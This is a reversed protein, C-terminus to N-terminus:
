RLLAEIKTELGDVGELREVLEGERNILFASPLSVVRYSSAVRSQTSEEDHVAVWPVNMSSSIWFHEDSDLSVQYINFGQASYKNYLEKLMMNYGASYNTKYATFDLLVVSGKLDSLRKMEGRYNPLEIDILATEEFEIHDFRAIVEDSAPVVPATMGMGKLAINHLHQTRTANPYNFDMSTAVTAFCKADQRDGRPNFLAAGRLTMFLAYYAVPSSPNRLIYEEKISSKFNGVMEEYRSRLAGVERGGYESVLKDLQTTMDIQSLVLRKLELSQESGEVSYDVSMRPYSARITISETSDIVVNVFQGGIRLRYFEYCTTDAEVSFEFEGKDDLKVSDISEVRNLAMRELYLMNGSAETIEGEITFRDAKHQCAVLILVLSALLLIKGRQM